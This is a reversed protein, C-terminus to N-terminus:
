ISEIPQSAKFIYRQCEEQVSGLSIAIGSDDGNGSSFDEDEGNSLGLSLTMGTEARKQLGM